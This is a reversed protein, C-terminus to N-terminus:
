DSTQDDIARWDDMYEVRILDYDGYRAEVQDWLIPEVERDGPHWLTPDDLDQWVPLPLQDGRRRNELQELRTNITKSM